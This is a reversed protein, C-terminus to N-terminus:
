GAAARHGAITVSDAIRHRMLTDAIRLHLQRRTALDMTELTARRVFEHYLEIEEIYGTFRSRIFRLERLPVFLESDVGAIEAIEAAVDAPLPQGAVALVEVVRRSGAPLMALRRDLVRELALTDEGAIGDRVGRAYESALFPSGDSERVITELTRADVSELVDRVVSAVDGDSMRGVELDRSEIGSGRLRQLFLSTGADENTYALIVLIPPADPGSLVEALM